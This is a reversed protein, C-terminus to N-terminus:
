FSFITKVTWRDTAGNLGRGVGFNLNKTDLVFYLTHAQESQPSFHSLRGLDAYYEFGLATGGGVNRALKLAPAFTLVGKQPGALNADLIPNFSVLWDENRYGIIPRIEATRRAEEFRREVFSLEGNIGAFYGAAGEKPRLPMWKLRLRPGAFFNSGEGSRVFPLYLGADWGPALGYSIEPTVRLGHRPPVEGPYDPTARGSPTTNVHLELGHEGPAEIDDTYVQIEDPLAAWGRSVCCALL